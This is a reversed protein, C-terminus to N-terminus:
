HAGGDSGMSGVFADLSEQEVESPIEIPPVLRREQVPQPQPNRSGEPRPKAGAAVKNKIVPPQPPAGSFLTVTYRVQPATGDANIYPVVVVAAVLLGHLLLSVPISLWKKTAKPKDILQSFMKEKM